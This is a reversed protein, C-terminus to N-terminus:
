IQESDAEDTIYRREVLPMVEAILGDVDLRAEERLVRQMKPHTQPNPPLFVTCCDDYPRISIAYTDIKKSVNVIEEKDFGVLPRLVPYEAVANTVTISELTQSAVQGLSEGTVIAGLEHEACLANAVRMMMRRLIIVMFSEDCRAHIAEQVKTFPVFYTEIPGTYPTIQAALDEAKQRAFESTYPPSFFHVAKLRMGRKAMMYGAVPSDIGGSLMLLGRGATGVPMGGACPIVDRFLYTLGSERIDIHIAFDPNHLDVTLAPNSELLDGGIERAVEMSTMPFTKDARNVNVRFSGKRKALSLAVSRISEYENEAIWAVSVSHLGFVKTLRDLILEEEEERYDEVVYRSYSKYVKCPYPALAKRVNAILANEFFKRNHGKLHLESYRLIIVKQNM